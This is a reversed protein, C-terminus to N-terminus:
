FTGYDIANDGPLVPDDSDSRDVVEFPPVYEHILGRSQNWMLLYGDQRDTLDVDDLEGITDIEQSTSIDVNVPSKKIAQIIKNNGANLRVNYKSM